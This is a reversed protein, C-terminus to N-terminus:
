IDETIIQKLNELTIHSMNALRVSQNQRVEEFINRVFRGNGFNKDKNLIASHFKTVLKDKANEDIVYDNKSLLSEFIQMLEEETYDPFDIYHTFRSQLGPNTNIFNKMNDTYGAIIVVLRDRDDEMRKLLTAIAEKGYDNASGESLTYAEDIFLVGDLASDIIKNTKVATQGIYEAVLGARDTEILHGKKLIGLEKYINAVIRAVTTKGTGPNGTFVCHLSLSATKLGNQERMQQVQIFKADKSVQSKVSNLGILSMLEDMASSKQPTPSNVIVQEKNDQEAIVVVSNIDNYMKNRLLMLNSLYEQESKTIVNDAKVVLSLLRYMITLYRSILFNDSFKLKCIAFQIEDSNNKTSMSSSSHIREDFFDNFKKSSNVLSDYSKNADISCILHLAMSERIDLKDNGKFQSFADIVDSTALAEIKIYANDKLESKIYSDNAIDQLVVHFDTIIDCINKYIDKSLYEITQGSLNIGPVEYTGERLKQIIDSKNPNVELGRTDTSYKVIKLQMMKELIASAESLSIDENEAIQHATIGYLNYLHNAIQLFNEDIGYKALNDDRTQLRQRWENRKNLDILRANQKAIENAIKEEEVSLKKIFDSEDNTVLGDAMAVVTTFLSLCEMYDASIKLDSKLISPIYFTLKQQRSIYFKYLEQLLVKHSNTFDKIQTNIGEYHLRPRYEELEAMVVLFALTETTSLDLKKNISGFCQIIDFYLIYKIKEKIDVIKRKGQTVNFSKLSEEINPLVCIKDYMQRVELGLNIIEKFQEHNLSISINDINEFIHESNTPKTKTPIRNAWELKYNNFGNAVIESIGDKSVVYRARVKGIILLEGMVCYKTCPNDNYRLDPSGDKNAYKYENIVKYCDSPIVYKGTNYTVRSSYKFTLDNYSIVENYGLPTCVFIFSPYFYIKTIYDIELVPVALKCNLYPFGDFTLSTRFFGNDNRWFSQTQELSSMEMVFHNFDSILTDPLGELVDFPVPPNATVNKKFVLYDRQATYVGSKVWEDEKCESIKKEIDEIHERFDNEEQEKQLLKKKEEKEIDLHIRKKVNYDHIRCLIFGLIISAGYLYTLYIPKNDLLSAIIPYKDHLYALPIFSFATVVFAIIYLLLKYFFHQFFTHSQKKSEMNSTNKLHNNTDISTKQTKDQTNTSSDIKHRSYLGTGPIGLNMYTGRSGINVNAGRPGITTSIGSKSINLRVGPLIKIRKRFGWAM